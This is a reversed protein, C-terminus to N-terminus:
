KNKRKLKRVEELLDDEQGQKYKKSVEVGLLYTDVAKDRQNTNEYLKALYTLLGIYEPYEKSASELVTIAGLENGNDVLLSVLSFYDEAPRRANKGYRKKLWKESELFATDSYNDILGESIKIDSFLFRLGNYNLLMRSAMHGEDGVQEHKWRFNAPRHQEVVDIYRKLEQRMGWGDGGGIGFYATKDLTNTLKFFSKAKETMEEKNWWLAPAAVIFANFLDPREMLTYISFLGGLSHGELIRYPHTRYHSDIFPILEEQFFDLFRPAGGSQPIGANGSSGHLNKGANSPTLDRNRDLSEIAVIILPPILGSETLMEVTGVTHKINALGDLVYLVPYTAHTEKYGFPLSIIFPREEQLITSKLFHQTGLGLLQGNETKEITHAVQGFSSCFCSLVMILRILQKTSISKM